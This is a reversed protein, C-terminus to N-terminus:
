SIVGRQLPLESGMGAAKFPRPASRFFVVRFQSGPQIVGYVGATAEDGQGLLPPLEQLLPKAREIVAAVGRGGQRLAVQRHYLPPTAGPTGPLGLVWVPVVM